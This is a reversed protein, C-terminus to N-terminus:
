NLYDVLLSNLFSDSSPLTIRFRFRGTTAESNWKETPIASLVSPSMGTDGESLTEWATGAYMKWTQGADFSVAFLCDDSADVNVTGIGLITEHTMDYDESELTQAPPVGKVVAVLSNIEDETSDIWYLVVPDTLTVLLESAPIDDVGYTRFLEANVSGEVATLVGDTVTFMSDGSQILYKRDYPEALEILEYTPIFSGNEQVLFTVDPSASSPANYSTNLLSFTGNWNSSPVDVMHLSIDGSEWLIVDYTIKSNVDSSNYHSYGSWRIKLFRYYNFLTGEERYLYWMATDRRNVKLQEANTGFGFFTNGSVYISSAVTGNFTFWDVGTVTDIGDDQKSNNRIVTMNTIGADIMEQVSNYNM